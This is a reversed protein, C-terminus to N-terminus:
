EKRAVFLGGVFFSIILWAAVTWGSLTEGDAIFMIWFSFVIYAVLGFIILIRM